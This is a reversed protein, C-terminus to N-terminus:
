ISSHAECMEKRLLALARRERQRITGDAEHLKHAIEHLKLGEFYHLYIVKRYKEPLASVGAALEYRSEKSELLHEPWKAPADEITDFFTEGLVELPVPTHKRKEIYALYASRAIKYLWPRLWSAMSRIKEESYGSLASYTRLAIDQVIDDADPSNKTYRYIYAYLSGVYKQWLLVYHRNLDTALLGLITDDGPDMPPRGQKM